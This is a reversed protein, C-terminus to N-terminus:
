SNDALDTNTGEPHVEPPTPINEENTKQKIESYAYYKGNFQMAKKPAPMLHVPGEGTLAENLDSKLLFTRVNIEWLRYSINDIMMVNEM